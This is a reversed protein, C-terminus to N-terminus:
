VVILHAHSMFPPDCHTSSVSVQAWWGWGRRAPWLVGIKPNADNIRVYRVLAANQSEDLAQILTNFIRQAPQNGPEPIVALVNSM